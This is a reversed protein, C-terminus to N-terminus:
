LFDLCHLIAWAGLGEFPQSAEKAEHAVIFFQTASHNYLPGKISKELSFEKMHFLVVSCANYRNFTEINIVRTKDMNSKLLGKMNSHSAEHLHIPTTGICLIYCGGVYSLFM